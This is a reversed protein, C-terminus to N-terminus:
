VQTAPLLEPWGSPNQLMDEAVRGLSLDLLFLVAYRVYLPGSCGSIIGTPIAPYQKRYRTQEVCMYPEGGLSHSVLLVSLHGGAPSGQGSFTHLSRPAVIHKHPTAVKPSLMSSTFCPLVWM